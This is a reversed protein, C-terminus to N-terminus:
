LKTSMRMKFCTSAGGAAGLRGGDLHVHTAAVVFGNRAFSQRGNGFFGPAVHGVFVFSKMSMVKRYSFNVVDFLSPINSNSELDSTQQIGLNKNGIALSEPIKATIRQGCKDTTQLLCGM